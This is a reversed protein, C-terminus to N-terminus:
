LIKAHSVRTSKGCQMVRTKWIREERNKMGCQGQHEYTGSTL